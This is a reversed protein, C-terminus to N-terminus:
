ELGGKRNRMEPRTHVTEYKWVKVESGGEEGPMGELNGGGGGPGMWGIRTQM